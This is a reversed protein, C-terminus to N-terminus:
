ALLSYHFIVLSDEWAAFQCQGLKLKDGIYPRGLTRVWHQGLLIASM